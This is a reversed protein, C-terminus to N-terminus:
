RLYLPVPQIMVERQVGDQTLVCDHLTYRSQQIEGAQQSSALLRELFAQRSTDGASLKWAMLHLGKIDHFRAKSCPMRLLDPHPPLIRPVEVLLQSIMRFWPQRPWFPAILIVLCEEKLIKSLVRHILPIPPFAYATLGTWEFSLADQAFAEPDNGRTCYVPLIKNKRTAFLDVLPEGFVAFVQRAVEPDLSWETPMISRGRSLSDAILNDDGPIHVASLSVGEAHCWLLMSIVQLCLSESRTGGQRNIYSVTTANDSKVLVRKGQVLHLLAKLSKEVALLELVNIHLGIEHSNWVGSITSAGIHGGWGFNSADTVLTVQHTAKPFRVGAVLNSKLTWWELHRHMDAQVPVPTDLEQSTQTFFRALHLQLVRMRLRCWPVIEVLSAMLGLCRMWLRAPAVKMTMLESVTQIVTAVREPSPVVIGNRLDLVAGLYLPTQTPVLHSKKQNIVFGLDQAVQIVVQTKERAEAETKALVLWDDLYMFIQIGRRRLYAAVAMVVRTFVRPATSLGFPLCRFAYCQGNISFRLWRHHSPHIPIHLYADKLDISTAFSGIIDSKLITALTEMRFRQPRIFQNLPRLNIIPRWEGSKKPALFFIASFGPQIASRQLPYVAEKDILDKLEKLLAERKPGEQPLPTPRIVESSVPRDTFELRYGHTLTSIVWEDAHIENWRHAFTLLRAGVV